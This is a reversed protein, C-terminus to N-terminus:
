VSYDKKTSRKFAKSMYASSCHMLSVQCSSLIVSGRPENLKFCYVTEIQSFSRVLELLESGNQVIHYMSFM